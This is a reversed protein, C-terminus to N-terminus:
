QGEQELLAITARKVSFLFILEVISAPIALIPIYLAVQCACYLQALGENIRYRDLGHQQLAMNMDEALGKYATFAWYLNFLPIASGVVAMFPTTRAIKIPRTPVAKWFQYLLTLEFFWQLVQVPIGFPLSIYPSVFPAVGNYLLLISVGLSIGYFIFYDNLRKIRPSEETITARDLVPFKLGAIREAPVRGQSTYVLSSPHIIERDVLYQLDQLTDCRHQEYIFQPM